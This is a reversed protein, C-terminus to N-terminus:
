KGIIVITAGTYSPPSFTSSVMPTPGAPIVSGSVRMTYNPDTFHATFGTPITPSNPTPASAMVLMMSNGYNATASPYVVSSGYGSVVIGADIPSVPDTNRYALVVGYIDIPSPMYTPDGILFLFNSAAVDSADAFKWYFNQDYGIAERGVRSVLIWGAPATISDSYNQDILAILLDGVQIGNPKPIALNRSTTSLNRAGVFVPPSQPNVNREVLEEAILSKGEFTLNNPAESSYSFQTSNLKRAPMVDVCKERHLYAEGSAALELRSAINKPAACGADVEVFVKGNYPQGNNFTTSSSASSKGKLEMRSQCNQFGIMVVM